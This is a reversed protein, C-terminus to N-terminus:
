INYPVELTLLVKRYLIKMHENVCVSSVVAVREGRRLVVRIRLHRFYYADTYGRVPYNYLSPFVRM